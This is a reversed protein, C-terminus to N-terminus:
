DHDVRALNGDKCFQAAFHLDRYYQMDEENMTSLAVWVGKMTM